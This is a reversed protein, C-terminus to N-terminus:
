DKAGASLSEFGRARSRERGVLIYQCKDTKLNDKGKSTMHTHTHIILADTHANASVEVQEAQIVQLM